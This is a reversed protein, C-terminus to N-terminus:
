TAVTIPVVSTMRSTTVPPSIISRHVGPKTRAFPVRVLHRPRPTPLRRFARCSDPTIFEETRKGPLTTITSFWSLTHEFSYQLVPRAAEPDDLSGITVSINPGEILNYTLPTGCAACFQREVLSSSRFSAPQGRTWSLAGNRVRAFAMIPGGSAKQCMRCHCVSVHDPAGSLEYRVCGCQCGGALRVDDRGAM